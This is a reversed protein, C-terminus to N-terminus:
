SLNAPSLPRVSQATEATEATEHPACPARPAREMGDKARQRERTEEPNQAFTPLITRPCRAGGSRSAPVGAARGFAQVQNQDVQPGGQPERYPPARRFRQWRQAVEASGGKRQQKQAVEAGSLDM